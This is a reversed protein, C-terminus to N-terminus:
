DKFRKRRQTLMLLVEVLKFIWFIPTLLLAFILSIAINGALPFAIAVYLTIAVYLVIGVITGVSISDEYGEKQTFTYYELIM